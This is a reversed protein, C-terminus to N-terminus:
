AVHHREKRPREKQLRRTCLRLVARMTALAAAVVVLVCTAYASAQALFGNEDLRMVSVAALGLDPTVLFIVASLTVMSRMFLYFFVSVIAPAAFPLVADRLVHGTGGGLSTVADELAVPVARVGAVMTLFGQAHYHYINCLAVIALSGYLWASLPGHNFTLVYSLGIMMGPVAAPLTALLYVPRALTPRLRRTGAALGFILATGVVAALISAQLSTAVPAYGDPMGGFYNALTLSRDYPWLRILSVYVVTGITLLLPLLILVTAVGLAVDRTRGKTPTSFRAHTAGGADQRRRAARELWVALLSPLLLLVGLTAGMGFNMQGAVQSYIETALVRYNGGIVVANGFDTITETFVLFAAALLAFRIHPFTIDRFQRWPTAGMSEAADYYRRSTGALATTVIIVVQPLGYLTNAILLGSFGYIDTPLGTLRHILGNHGLLCVLGLGLMLSPALMPLLLVGRILPKGPVRTRELTMAVLLGLSLTTATSAIGIALSHLAARPLGPDTLLQAYNGTTFHGAVDSLSRWVIVGLPYLFFVLLAALPVSVLLVPVIASRERPKAPNSPTAAAVTMRAAM